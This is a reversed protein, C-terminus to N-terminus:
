PKVWKNTKGSKFVAEIVKLNNLSNELPVAVEKNELIAFSFQDGQIQYQDCKKINKITIQKGFKDGKDILLRCPRDDPSNFPIEIELRKKTGYFIMRQYHVMRTSCTVVMPASPYDLIFSNLVDIKMKPDYNVISVVRKPEEDLTFRSTTIPYCGIDFMAGGGTEKINRIDNPDDNYFSFHGQVSKLEGLEGSKIIKRAEIWQPNTRVMFAEGIKVNYTDRLKILENIEKAKITLPKECLVHKGAIISKKAWEFHLHNPLPIYVAEIEKDNLLEEYSGYTKPIKLKKAAKKAKDINRSAIAAIDCFKGKQMAPIVLNVGINATSLVGWKVKKAM